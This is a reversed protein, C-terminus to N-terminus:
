EGPAKRRFMKTFGDFKQNKIKGQPIHKKSEPEHEHTAKEKHEKKEGPAEEKSESKQVGTTKPAATKASETKAASKTKPKSVVVVEKETLELFVMVASDGKRPTPLPIIRTYGGARKTFRPAIVNFLKSVLQHDCLIAFAFRKDALTGKKGLTILKEVLKRTEKARAKTTCIREQILTAKAMDRVTAKRHSWKWNLRNGAMKHRM